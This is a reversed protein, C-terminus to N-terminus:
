RLDRDGKIPKVDDYNRPPHPESTSPPKPTPGEDGEDRMDSEPGRPDPRQEYPDPFETEDPETAPNALTHHPEDARPDTADPNLPRPPETERQAEREARRSEEDM